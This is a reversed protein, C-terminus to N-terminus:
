RHSGLTDDVDRSWGTNRPSDVSGSLEDYGHVISM